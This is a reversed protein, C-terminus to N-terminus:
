TLGSHIKRMSEGTLIVRYADLNGVDGLTGSKKGKRKTGLFFFRHM